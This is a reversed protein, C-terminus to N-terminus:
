VCERPAVPCPCDHHGVETWPFCIAVATGGETRFHIDGKLQYSVISRVLKLGLKGAAGTENDGLGVGHDRITFRVQRSDSELSFEVLGGRGDPFAHNLVNTALEGIVLGLPLAMSVPLLVDQMNMRAEIRTASFLGRLHGWLHRVHHAMDIESLHDDQYLQSHVMSMSIIKAGLDRCLVQAEETKARRGSMDLLSSVVQLNNKVRHHVERLLLDKEVLSRKLEREVRKLSTMDVDICFLMPSAGQLKIVSHSSLVPVLSGDKHLLELEEPPPMCGTMVAEAILARVAPRAPEPIIMEVLDNGLAEEASYGYLVESAKNWYSVICDAGYGQVSIGQVDDLLSRLFADIEVGVVHGKLAANERKLSKIEVLLEAQTRDESM